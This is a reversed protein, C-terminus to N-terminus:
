SKEHNGDQFLQKHIRMQLQDEFVRNAEHIWLRHLDATAFNPNELALSMGQMMRGIHRLSWRQDRIPIPGPHALSPPAMMWTSSQSHSCCPVASVRSSSPCTMTFVGPVSPSKPHRIISTNKQFQVTGRGHSCGYGSPLDICMALIQIEVNRQRDRPSNWFNTGFITRFLIKEM